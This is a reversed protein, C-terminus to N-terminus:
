RRLRYAQIFLWGLVAICWGLLSMWYDAWEAERHPTIAQFLEDMAYFLPFLLFFITQQTKSRQLLRCLIALCWPLLAGIITHLVHDGGVARQWPKMWVFSTPHAHLVVVATLALLVLSAVLDLLRLSWIRSQKMQNFAM